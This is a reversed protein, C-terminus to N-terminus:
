GDAPRPAAVTQKLGEWTLAIRLNAKGTGKVILATLKGSEVGIEVGLEVTASTPGVRRLLGSLEEAIGEIAKSISTFDYIGGAVDTEGSSVEIRVHEKNALVVPVLTRPM